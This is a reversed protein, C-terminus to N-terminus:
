WWESDLKGEISRLNERACRECYWRQAGREVSSVWTLPPSEGPEATGCHACTTTM